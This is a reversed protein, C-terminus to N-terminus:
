VSMELRDGMGRVVVLHLRGAKPSSKLGHQVANEVLPQLSFPPVLAESLGPDITEEVKLRNGFQLSEIELDARVVALEEGLPVLEREHQDFIACGGPRVPIRSRRSQRWLPLRTRLM